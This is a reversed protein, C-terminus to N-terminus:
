AAELDMSEVLDARRLCCSMVIPVSCAQVAFVWAGAYSENMKNHHPLMAQEAPPCECSGITYPPKRAQM